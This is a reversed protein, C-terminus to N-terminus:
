LPGFSIILTPWILNVFVHLQRIFAQEAEQDALSLNLVHSEREKCLANLELDISDFGSKVKHPNKLPQRTVM